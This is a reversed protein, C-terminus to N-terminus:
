AHTHTYTHTHTHIHTHTHTHNGESISQLQKLANNMDTNSDKLEKLQARQEEVTRESASLRAEAASVNAVLALSGCVCVCVCGCWWVCACVCVCECECECVCECVCVLEPLTRHNNTTNTHHHHLAHREGAAEAGLRETQSHIYCIRDAATRGHTNEARRQVCKQQQQAQRM